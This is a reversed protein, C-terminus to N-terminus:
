KNGRHGRLEQYARGLCAITDTPLMSEESQNDLALESARGCLWAALRAAEYPALRRALLAACVGTLVDGSGGTVQGPTGASNYVLPKGAQGVITRAGKLLLTVPMEAVYETVIEARTKDETPWLRAMEGPHPTLLRPHTFARADLKERAILNLGDADVVMPAPLNRILDLLEPGREDGLGPGLGLADLREHLISAYTDVSKIIIEPPLSVAM